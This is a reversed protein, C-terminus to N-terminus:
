GDDLLSRRAGTCHQIRNQSSPPRNIKPTIRRSFAAPEGSVDPHSLGLRSDRSNSESGSAIAAPSQHRFTEVGPRHEVVIDAAPGPRETQVFVAAQAEGHGRDNV